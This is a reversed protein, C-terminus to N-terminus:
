YGNKEIRKKGLFMSVAAYGMLALVVGIGNSMIVSFLAILNVQKVKLHGNLYARQVTGFSNIVFGCFLFRALPTLSADHNFEAIYPAAFWLLLYLLSSVLINFWFVSNYEEHTPEKKNILAATLGSDQLSTAINSYILLVAIKGYDAPSLINLMVLGLLLGIVQMAGNGLGGWLLGKATKDKLESM